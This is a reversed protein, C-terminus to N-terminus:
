RCAAGDPGAIAAGIACRRPYRALIRYGQQPGRESSVLVYGRVSWRIPTAQSPPASGGAHRALTLHPRFPRAETPMRLSQLARKLDAHLALLAPPMAAPLLVAVGQSWLAAAAFILEFRKFDVQLGQQLEPLRARPVDGLFHLTLHLREPAVRAATDSWRWAAQRAQLALRM